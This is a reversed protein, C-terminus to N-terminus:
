PVTMTVIRVLSSLPITCRCSLLPLMMRCSFDLALPDIPGNQAPAKMLAHVLSRAIICSVFRDSLSAEEEEESSSAPDPFGTSNYARHWMPEQTLGVRQKIFEILERSVETAKADCMDKTIRRGPMAQLIALALVVVTTEEERPVRALRARLPGYYGPELDHNVEIDHAINAVISCGIGEFEDPSRLGQEIDNKSRYRIRVKHTEYYAKCTEYNLVFGYLSTPM